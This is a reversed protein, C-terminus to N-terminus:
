YSNYNLVPDQNFMVILYPEATGDSHIFPEECGVWGIEIIDDAFQKDFVFLEGIRSPKLGEEYYFDNFLFSGNKDRMENLVTQIHKLEETNSRFWRGGFPEWMLVTKGGFEPYRTRGIEIEEDEDPLNKKALEQIAKETVKEAKKQGVIEPLQEKMTRAATEAGTAIGLAAVQKRHGDVTAGITCASGASFLIVPLVFFQWTEQVKEKKTMRRKLEESKAEIVRNAKVCSKGMSIGFSINLAIGTVTLIIPLNDKIPRKINM